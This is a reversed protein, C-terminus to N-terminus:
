ESETVEESEDDEEMPLQASPRGHRRADREVQHTSLGMHAKCWNTLKGFWRKNIGVISVGKIQGFMRAVGALLMVDGGKRYENVMSPSEERTLGYAVSRTGGEATPAFEFAHNIDGGFLENVIRELYAGWSADLEVKRGRLLAKARPDNSEREEYWLGLHYLSHIM